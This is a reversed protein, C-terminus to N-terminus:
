ALGCPAVPGHPGAAFGPGPFPNACIEQDQGQDCAARVVPGASLENPPDSGQAAAQMRMTLRAISGTELAAWSAFYLARDPGLAFGRPIAPRTRRTAPKSTGEPSIRDACGVRGSGWEALDGRMRPAQCPVPRHLRM